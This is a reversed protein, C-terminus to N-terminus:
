KYLYSMQFLSEIDLKPFDKTISLVFLELHHSIDNHNRKNCSGYCIFLIYHFYVFKFYIYIGRILHICSSPNGIALSSDIDHTLPIVCTTTTCIDAAPAPIEIWKLSDSGIIPVEM